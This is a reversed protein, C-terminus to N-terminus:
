FSGCNCVLLDSAAAKLKDAAARRAGEAAARAEGKKQQLAEREQEAFRIAARHRKAALARAEVLRELKAAFQQYEVRLRRCKTKRSHQAATYVQNCWHIIDEAGVADRRGNLSALVDRFRGYAVEAAAATSLSHIVQLHHTVGDSVYSLLASDFEGVFAFFIGPGSSMPNQWDTPAVNKRMTLPLFHEGFVPFTFITKIDTRSSSITSASSPVKAYNIGWTTGSTDIKIWVSVSVTVGWASVGATGSAYVHKDSSTWAVDLSVDTVWVTLIDDGWSFDDVSGSCSLGSSTGIKLSVYATVGFIGLDLSSSFGAPYWVQGLRAGDPCAYLDFSKCIITGDPLTPLTIDLIKSTLRIIDNVDIDSLHVKVLLDLLRMDDETRVDRRLPTSVASITM